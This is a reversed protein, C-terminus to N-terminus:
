SAMMVLVRGLPLCGGSCIRQCINGQVTQSSFPFGEMVMQGGTQAAAARDTNTGRFEPMKGGEVSIVERDDM